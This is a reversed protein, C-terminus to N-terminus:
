IGASLDERVPLHLGAVAGYPAPAIFHVPFHVAEILMLPFNSTTIPLPDAVTETPLLFTAEIFSFM